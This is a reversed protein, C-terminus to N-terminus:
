HVGLAPVAAKRRGRREPPTPAEQPLGLSDGIERAREQTFAETRMLKMREFAEREGTRHQEHWREVVAEIEELLSAVERRRM